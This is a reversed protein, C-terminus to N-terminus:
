NTIFYDQQFIGFLEITMLYKAQNYGLFSTRAM